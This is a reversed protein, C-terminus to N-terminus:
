WCRGRPHRSPRLPESVVDRLLPGDRPAAPRRLGRGQRRPLGPVAHGPLHRRHPRHRRGHDERDGWRGICELMADVIRAELPTSGSRRRLTSTMEQSLLFDDTEGDVVAPRDDTVGREAPGGGPGRGPGGQAPAPVYGGAAITTFIAWQVAYSSTRGRAWSRRGWRCSGRARGRGAPPEDPIARSWSSTRPCSTRPSRPTSASSTSAPWWRRADGDEPDRPASAAGADPRPGAPGGRPRGRPRRRRRRDRRRRTARHVRPERAGGGSGTPRAALPTLVWGGPAGNFTRNEVVVTQDALYRARPSPPATSCTTSRTTVSRTRPSAARAGARRAAGASGRRPRKYDRKEHSGALDALADGRGHGGRAARRGRPPRDVEPTRAFRWSM